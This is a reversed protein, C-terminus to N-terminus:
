PFIPKDMLFVVLCYLFVLGVKYGKLRSLMEVASAVADFAVRRVRNSLPFFGKQSRVKLYFKWESSSVFM